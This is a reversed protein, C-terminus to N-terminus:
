RPRVGFIIGLFEIICGSGVLAEDTKGVVASGRGSFLGFDQDAFCIQVGFADFLVWEVGHTNIYM